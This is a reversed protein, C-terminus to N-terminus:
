GGAFRDREYQRRELPRDLPFIALVQTGNGPSSVIELRGGLLNARERMGMLGFTKGDRLVQLLDFGRGNDQIMIKLFGGQVLCEVKIQDAKSYRAVNTLAEQIIRYVATEMEPSFRRDMGSHNFNVPVGTQNGYKDFHWLLTPLLGMDDLMTPRLRLSLERIQGMLTLVLSQSEQLSAVLAEGSLRKGAELSLQLGTLVQGVQDHLERALYRREIEQIEVLKKSLMKMRERGSSVQEFLRANLIAIVAQDALGKLFFQEDPSFDHVEGISVANLTGIIEEDQYMVAIAMSRFDGGRFLDLFPFASLAQLDPVVAIPENGQALFNEYLNRPIPEFLGRYKEYANNQGFTAALDFVERDKDYLIVGAVPTDLARAAEECVMGLVRDLDLQANLRSAVRVLAASRSAQQRIVGEIRRRETIDRFAIVLGQMQGRQSLIPTPAAEIPIQKRGKDILM